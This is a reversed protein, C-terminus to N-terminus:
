SRIFYTSNLLEIFRNAILSPSRDRQTALGVSRAPIQKMFQLETLTGEDLEQRVFSRTVFAAGYGRNAFEILMDMSSLEIDAEIHIDQSSFWQEVFQRTSSGQSLLLLPIKTIDEVALPRAAWHKYAAGVVFCDQITVLPVVVLEPDSLPLHVLGLDIHGEVLRKRIESTRGQILRIRVDPHDRHFQDLPSLLLHKIIPGSAGIKLEGASLDKLSKMRLEAAQLLSFSHEIYQLLDRGESTLRVGKSLREFLKVGLGAELQKVAYSVSPQTIHLEQAAKTLNGSRATHLFIRYWETNIIM